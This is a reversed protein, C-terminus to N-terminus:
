GLDTEEGDEIVGWNWTREIIGVDLGFKYAWFM